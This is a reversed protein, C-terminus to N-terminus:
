LAKEAAIFAAVDTLQQAQAATLGGSAAPVAKIANVIATTGGTIAALIMDRDSVQHQRINDFKAIIEDDTMTGFGGTLPQLNPGYLTPFLLPEPDRSTGPNNLWGGPGQREYHLHPGTLSGGGPIVAGSQGLAKGETVSQGLLVDYHGHIYYDVERSATYIGLVGSSRFKVKGARIAFLPTGSPMGIDIGCHFHQGNYWPEVDLDTEGWPQTIPWDGKWAASVM